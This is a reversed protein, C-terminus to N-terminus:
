SRASPGARAGARTTPGPSRARHCGPAARSARRGPRTGPPAPQTGPSARQSLPRILPSAAIPRAELSSTSKVLAPRVALCAHLKEDAAAGAEDARGERARAHELVAVLPGHEVFEGVGPPLLVEVVRGGVGGKGEKGA